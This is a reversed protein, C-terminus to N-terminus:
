ALHYHFFSNDIKHEDFDIINLSGSDFLFWKVHITISECSYERKLILIIGVNIFKCFSLSMLIVM